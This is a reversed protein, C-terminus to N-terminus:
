NSQLESMFFYDFSENESLAHNRRGILTLVKRCKEFRREGHLYKPSEEAKYICYLAYLLVFLPMGFIWRWDKSIFRFYLVALFITSSDIASMLSLSKALDSKLVNESMWVYGVIVRGGMGLGMLLYLARMVQKSTMFLALFQGIGQMSTGILM